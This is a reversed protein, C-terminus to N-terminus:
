SPTRAPVAYPSIFQSLLSLFASSMPMGLQMAFVRVVVHIHLLTDVGVCARVACTVWGFSVGGGLARGEEHGTGRVQPKGSEEWMIFTQVAVWGHVGGFQTVGM